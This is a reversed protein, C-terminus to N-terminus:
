FPDGWAAILERRQEETANWYDEYMDPEWHARKKPAGVVAMTQQDRIYYAIGLAMVCDDHAGDLAEPRGKANRGFTLMEMITNEDDVVEPRERMIEVLGAIVNPRTLKDTRFGISM